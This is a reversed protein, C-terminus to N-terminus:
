VSDNDCPPQQAANVPQHTRMVTAAYEVSAEGSVDQHETNSAEIVDDLGERASAEAWNRGIHGWLSEVHEWTAGDDSSREVIWGYVEGAAWSAYGALEDTLGTVMLDPPTGRCERTSPQDFMVGIYDGRRPTDETGGISPGDTGRYLPLVVTAGHFLRLWRAVVRYEHEDIACEVTAASVTDGDERPWDHDRQRATVIVGLDCEGRPDLGAADLVIRVRYVGHDTGREALVDDARM